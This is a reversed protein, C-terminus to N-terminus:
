NVTVGGWALQKRLSVVAKKKELEFKELAQMTRVYKIHHFYTCLAKTWAPMLKKIIKLIRGKRM